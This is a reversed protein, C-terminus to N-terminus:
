AAARVFALVLCLTILIDPVIPTIFFFRAALLAHMINFAIFVGAIPRIVSPSLSAVGAVLWFLVAEVLCIIAAILAYGFYFDWYSRQAGLFNFRHSKMAEIVAVEEPGHKPSAFVILAAHAIGQLLALVAAIRLLTASTV